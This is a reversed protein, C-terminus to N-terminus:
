SETGAGTPYSLGDGSVIRHLVPEQNTSIFGRDVSRAAQLCCNTKSRQRRGASSPYCSPLWAVSFYVFGSSFVPLFYFARIM